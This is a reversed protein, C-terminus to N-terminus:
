GAGWKDWIDKISCNPTLVNKALNSGGYLISAVLMWVGTSPNHIDCYGNRVNTEHQSWARKIADGHNNNLDKTKLNAGKQYNHIHTKLMGTCTTKDVHATCDVFHLLLWLEFIPNSWAFGIGNAAIQGAVQAFKGPVDNDCAVWIEDAEEKYKEAAQLLQDPSNKKRVIPTLAVKKDVTSIYNLYKQETQGECFVVVKPKLKITGKSGNKSKRRRKTM